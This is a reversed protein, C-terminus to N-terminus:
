AVYPPTINFLQSVVGRYVAHCSDCKAYDFETMVYNVLLMVNNYNYGDCKVLHGCLLLFFLYSWANHAQAVQLWEHMM